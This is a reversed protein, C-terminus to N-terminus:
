RREDCIGEVIEILGLNRGSLFIVKRNGLAPAAAAAAVVVCGKKKLQDVDREFDEAEYCIHYPADGLRKLLRWAVSAESRPSVLEVAYGGNKLFCIDADRAADYCVPSQESYGLPLFEEKAREIHRVLYGIHHIRM